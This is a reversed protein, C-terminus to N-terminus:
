GIAEFAALVRAVEDPRPVAVRTTGELGFSACDRVLVGQGALPSRLDPGDILVWNAESETVAYGLSSLESAFSARMEAIATRWAALNTRALLTPVLALALGNVSWRPRRGRIVAAAEADPAIVYGLRLGACAWLKTLSGLRWGDDDGRSWQGTALPYFAEDWVAAREDDSALQGLPNSPNSRWRGAAPDVTLHRRYLSFEPDQVHGRGLEAAVLAIAEAGGNTLVLRDRDVGIADALAETAASDDPYPVLADLLGAALAPVDPAVPNLSASLDLISAPDRGLSRAVAVVDGGHPGTPLEAM